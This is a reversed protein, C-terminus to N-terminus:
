LIELVAEPPRGLAAKRGALVIPRQILIPTEAMAAVLPSDTLDPDALGQEGYAPEKKRLIARPGQGLRRLVEALEAATPPDKLYERIEPEIGRQRLLDLTRRSTTCRPHHWITVKPTASSAILPSGRLLGPFTARGAMSSSSAHAATAL